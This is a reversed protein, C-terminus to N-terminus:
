SHTAVSRAAAAREGIEAWAHAAILDRPAIWSGAAALVNPQALYEALNGTDIGGTPVFALEAFPGHLAHLLPLSAPFLKQITFGAEALAMVESPSSAGPLWAIGLSRAADVLAPTAGPSICLRAGVALAADFDAPARVSGLAIDIDIGAARIARIGPLAAPSRLAVELLPMGAACLTRALPVADDPRDLTVLPIVRATRLLKDLM